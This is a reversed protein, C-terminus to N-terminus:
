PNVQRSLRSGIFTKPRNPTAGRAESDTGPEGVPPFRPFRYVTLASSRNGPVPLFRYPVSLPHTTRSTKM